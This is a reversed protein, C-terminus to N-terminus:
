STTLFANVMDALTEPASVMVSHGAGISRRLVGPGLNAAMQKALEPPVPVDQDMHVYLIPIGSSYGSLRANIIGPADPVLGSAHEAWQEDSLDNGFLARSTADDLPEVAPLEAGTMLIAASTGPPPVVAGVYVLHSIRGPHLYATETITVGGLSHGVLAVREFGADDAEEIVAAVCDSLTVRDLEAPRSGRGPLDVARAPLALLPLLKAWCSATHLAGHVLIIGDTEQQAM